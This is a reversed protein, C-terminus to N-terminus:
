LWRHDGSHAPLGRATVNPCSHVDVALESVKPYLVFMLVLAPQLTKELINPNRQPEHHVRSGRSGEDTTVASKRSIVLRRWAESSLVLGVVMLMVVVPVIMWFVLRPWYGALGVCELPTTAISALGFSVAVSFFELLSAVDNPLPVDYVSPVQTAIQYFVFLIKVKHLPTYATHIHKLRMRQKASLKRMLQWMLLLVLIAASFIGLWTLATTALTDGCDVCTAAEDSTSRKYYVPADLDSRDCLRCFVGTLNNACPEGTGGQCASASECESTGVTTSCNVRADPCVRVDVSTKDLRYYGKRLPLAELTSGRGCDTGVPCVTCQVVAATM